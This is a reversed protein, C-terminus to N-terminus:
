KYEPHTHRTPLGLKQIEETSELGTTVPLIGQLYVSHGEGCMGNPARHGAIHVAGMSNFATNTQNLHWLLFGCLPYLVSIQNRVTRSAVLGLDPGRCTQNGRLSREKAQLHGNEGKTKM